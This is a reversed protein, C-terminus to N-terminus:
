IYFANKNCLALSYLVSTYQVHVTCYKTKMVCNQTM